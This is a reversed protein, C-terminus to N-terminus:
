IEMEEINPRRLHKAPDHEKKWEVFTVPHDDVSKRMRVKRVLKKM